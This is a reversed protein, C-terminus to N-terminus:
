NFQYSINESSLEITVNQGKFKVLVSSVDAPVTLKMEYTQGPNLFAKQYINGNISAVTVIGTSNGTLNLQIDKSTKWDFDAPVEISALDKPTSDDPLTLEKKCSTAFVMVLAFIFLVSKKMM